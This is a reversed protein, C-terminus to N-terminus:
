IKLKKVARRIKKPADGERPLKEKAKGKESYVFMPGNLPGTGNKSANALRLLAADLNEKLAIGINDCIKKEHERALSVFEELGSLKGSFCRIVPNPEGLHVGMPEVVKRQEALLNHIKGVLETNQALLHEMKEMHEDLSKQVQKHLKNIDGKPDLKAGPPFDRLKGGAGSKLNNSESKVMALGFPSKVMEYKPTLSFKFFTCSSKRTFLMIGQLIRYFFM